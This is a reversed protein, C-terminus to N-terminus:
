RDPSTEPKHERVWAQFARIAANHGDARSRDLFGALAKATVFPFTPSSPRELYATGTLEYMRIRKGNYVWVEAVGLQAYTDFKKRSPHTIDIEVVIDPPPDTALDITEKGLVRAANRIYFCTDPEAGRLLDKRKFTTSGRSECEMGLELTLVGVMRLIVDKYAEHLALPAMVELTGSLFSIRVPYDDGVEALLDEYDEWAIDAIERREGPELTPIVALVSAVTKSVLKASM